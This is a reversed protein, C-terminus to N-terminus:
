DSSNLRPCLIPTKYQIGTGCHLRVRTNACRDGRDISYNNVFLRSMFFYFLFLLFNPLTTEVMNQLAFDAFFKKKKKRPSKICNEFLLIEFRLGSRLIVKGWPNWIELFIPGGFKPLPPLFVNFRYRLLSCVCLCVCPCVSMEVKPFCRGLPGISQFDQM